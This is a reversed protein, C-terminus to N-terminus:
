LEMGAQRLEEAVAAVRGHYRYSGRDLVLRKIRRKKLQEALLQAVQRARGLKAVPQPQGTAPPSAGFRIDSSTALTRGTQDDIVQLYTYRNSRFINL